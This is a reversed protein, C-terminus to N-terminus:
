PVFAVAKTPVLCLSRLSPTSYWFLLGHQTAIASSSFQAEGFCNEHEKEKM